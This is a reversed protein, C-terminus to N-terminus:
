PARHGAAPGTVCAEFLALHRRAMASSLDGQLAATRDIQRGQAVEGLYAQLVSAAQADPLANGGFCLLHGLAPRAAMAAHGASGERFAALLPKGSLAYTFLKSPIYGAEDVGLVLAGDAGTLLELSRRYSVRRPDEQVLDAVDHEQAVELLHKRDGARWHLMTGYLEFCIPDAGLDGQRKLQALARCIVGFARVMIPGGAGVYVIRRRPPGAAIATSAAERLDRASAAFPIVAHRDPRLWEPHKDGHRTRLTQVYDQSVSVLGAASRTTIAEMRKHLLSNIARKLGQPTGGHFGEAAPKFFPDHFDLVYPLGFRRRWYWGLMFLNFQTTSFYVLDFRQKQFLRAATQHLPLLSRWGISGLGMLRHLAAHRQPARHVPTDPNFFGAAADEITLPLQYATDPCLIEVDWGLAPLEWALLRARHMDATVAPAYTSTVILLRRKM